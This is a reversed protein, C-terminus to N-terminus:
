KYLDTRFRSPHMSSIDRWDLGREVLIVHHDSTHSGTAFCEVLNVFGVSLLTQAKSLEGVLCYELQVRATKNKCNRCIIIDYGSTTRIVKRGEIIDGLLWTYDEGDKAFIRQCKPCETPLFKEVRYMKRTRYEEM